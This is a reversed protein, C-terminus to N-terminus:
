EDVSAIMTGVFIVELSQYRSTERTDM